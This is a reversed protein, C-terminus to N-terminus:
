RAINELRRRLNEERNQEMLEFARRITAEHEESIGSNTNINSVGTNGPEVAVPPQTASEEFTTSRNTRRMVSSPKSNKKQFFIYACVVVVAFIGVAAAGAIIATSPPPPPPSPEPTPDPVDCRARDEYTEGEVATFIIM